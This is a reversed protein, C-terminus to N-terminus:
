HGLGGDSFNFSWFFNFNPMMVPKTDGSTATIFPASIVVGTHDGARLRIGPGILFGYSSDGPDLGSYRAVGAVIYPRVRADPATTPYLRLATKFYEVSQSERPFNTADARIHTDARQFGLELDLRDSLSVALAAGFTINDNVHVDNSLGWLFGVGAEVDVRRGLASHEGGSEAAQVAPPGLILAVGVFAALLFVTKVRIKM